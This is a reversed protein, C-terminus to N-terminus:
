AAMAKIQAVVAALDAGYASTWSAIIDETPRAMPVSYLPACDGFMPDVEQYCSRCVVGSEVNSSGKGSAGCCPTLPYALNDQVAITVDSLRFTTATM